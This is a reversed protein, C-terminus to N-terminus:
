SGKDLSVEGLLGTQKPLPLLGKGFPKSNSLLDTGSFDQYPIL